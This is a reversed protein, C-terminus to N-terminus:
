HLIISCYDGKNPQQIAALVILSLRGEIKELTAKKTNEGLPAPPHVYPRWPVGYPHLSTLCTTSHLPVEAQKKRKKEQV